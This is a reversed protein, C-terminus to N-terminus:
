VRRRVYVVTEGNEASVDLLEQGSVRAWAEVDGRCAPDTASARVVQGVAVSAMADKLKVLTVPCIVGRMDIELDYVIAPM